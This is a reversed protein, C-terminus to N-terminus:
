FINNMLEWYIDSPFDEKIFFKNFLVEVESINFWNNKNLIVDGGGFRLVSGDEFNTSSKEHYARYIKKETFDYKEVFCTFLGGGVQIYNGFEDTLIAYSNPGYSRLNKLEKKVNSFKDVFLEEKNEIKLKM